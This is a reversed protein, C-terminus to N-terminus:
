CIKYFEVLYDLGRRLMHKFMYSCHSRERESSNDNDAIDSDEICIRRLLDWYEPPVTMIARLYREQHFLTKESEGWWSCNDVRTKELDCVVGTEFHGEFYDRALLQGAILRQQESYVCGKEHLSGALYARELASCNKYVLKGVKRLGNRILDERTVYGEDFDAM